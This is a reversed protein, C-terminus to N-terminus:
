SWLEKRFLPKQLTVKVSTNSNQMRVNYALMHFGSQSSNRRAACCRMWSQLELRILDTIPIQELVRSLCGLSLRWCVCLVWCCMFTCLMIWWWVCGTSNFYNQGQSCSRSVTSPNFWFAPRCNGDGRREYGYDSHFLLVCGCSVRDIDAHPFPCITM